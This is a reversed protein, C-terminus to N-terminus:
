VRLPSSSPPTEVRNAALVTSPAEGRVLFPTWDLSFAINLFDVNVSAYTLLAPSHGVVCCGHNDPSPLSAPQEHEHCGAVPALEVPSVQISGQTGFFSLCGLVLVAFTKSIFSLM